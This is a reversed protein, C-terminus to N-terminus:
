ARFDLLRRERVPRRNGADVAPEARREDEHQRQAVWVLPAILLVVFLPAMIFPAACMTGSAAILLSGVMMAIAGAARRRMDSRM